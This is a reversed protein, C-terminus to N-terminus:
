RGFLRAYDRAATEIDAAGFVGDVAAILDAGADVLPAGNAPTIGGIACIPLSTDIRVARLLDLTAHRADPKTRSAFFAGLALYDAGGEGAARARAASDQCTIGIVRAPGLRARAEILSLDELGLHVGHADGRLALDVDDNVILRARYRDCLARLARVSSLRRTDDDTKDRYQILRAGGRLASETADLLRPPDLCLSTPTIAYLGRM